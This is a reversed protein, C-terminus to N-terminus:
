ALWWFIMVDRHLHTGAGAVWGEPGWGVQLVHPAARHKAASLLCTGALGCACGWGGPAAAWRSFMHHLVISAPLDKLLPSGPVEAAETFLLARFARLLKYPAGLHELPWLAQGVCLQLEAVDKALQLKGAQLSASSPLM